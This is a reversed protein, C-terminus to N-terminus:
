SAGDVAFMRSLFEAEIQRIKLTKTIGGEAETTAFVAPINHDGNIYVVEFESDAPNIALKGCLRNLQEYDVWEVDRWLVLTKEGSSLWGTVTVFGQERQMDIHKVRLGILYNFTEVLDISREEYAGASDITVKLTCDFPKNFHEVSLLSDRSEIDLLYRLLYDEQVSQPLTDLLDQQQATRRLQLNNLTDEYSELKLVKFAHSIGTEPATAKGDKWDASYVVKQIRPKLVTDFYEGQEVLIYKRNGNDQRNLVIVAHGTTGSGAFYDVIVPAKYSATSLYICRRVLNISKPFDFKKDGLIDILLTNGYNGADFEGGTWVTKPVTQEHTVFLDFFGDVEIVAIRELNSKISDLGFNWRREIGDQDIPWIEIEDNELHINKASPHFDDDPVSGIRVIKGRKIYIPYFSLRRETRLSNEGWRRMKRPKENEESTRAIYGKNDSKTLFLSYEHVRNFDKTISGKPNHVVSIRSLKYAPAADELIISLNVMESDDIAIVKVGDENLLKMSLALRDQMLSAWSSHKYENKYLIPTSNTNYPPDIYICKVQERYQEQLLNLAQFNDGHILLGDLSDDLNDIAALLAHKFAADYLATDAMLYPHAKLYEVSGTEAQNFMHTKHESLMGLKEWQEWQGPNAAITPYLSEPVRDLTVCYHTAVVFKKKLWLKKQFDELQALFAILDLAIARLTQILRLNREIDAFKEAHQVDDLHMVENKIYFDLENRLFRGLDKHIFYDATNRTTYQTLHKELLTRQPNKETPERQSLALWRAKVYADNLIATVADALLKEQKSDPTNKPMAKYEFRLVLEQGNAGNEETVPLLPANGHTGADDADAEEGTHVPIHPEILVFRREKDNDKRNDKATDATVLRFRVTRGDDLKFAYNSFSESSKIYYQDKNAWHLVVEEGAYPIAYTDGKYRRQSIFDGKDYYRSFFTLMHSFVANEHESAGTSYQALKQKIEQVKPVTAPDIGDASYQAEKEQLERRLGDTNAAGSAALSEGVKAKLRHELYHNIEAARANFIRYIGFDLEPRDIQFIEKLKKVLDDYKSM